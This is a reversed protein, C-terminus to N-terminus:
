LAFAFADSFSGIIFIAVGWIGARDFAAIFTHGKKRFILYSLFMIVSAAILTIMLTETLTFHM